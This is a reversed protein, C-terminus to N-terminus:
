GRQRQDCNAVTWNAMKYEVGTVPMEIERDSTFAIRRDCGEVLDIDHRVVGLRLPFLSADSDKSPRYCNASIATSNVAM